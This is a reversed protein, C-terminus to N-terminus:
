VLTKKLIFLCVNRTKNSTASNEPRPKQTTFFNRQFSVHSSSKPSTIPNTEPVDENTKSSFGHPHKTPTFIKSTVM